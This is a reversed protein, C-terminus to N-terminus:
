IMVRDRRRARHGLESVRESVRWGALGAPCGVSAEVRTGKLPPAFHVSRRYSQHKADSSTRVIPTPPLVKEGTRIRHLLSRAPAAPAGEVFTRQRPARARALLVGSVAFSMARSRTAGSRSM